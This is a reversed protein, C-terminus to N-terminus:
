WMTQHGRRLRSRRTRRDPRFMGGRGQDCRSAGGGEHDTGAEASEGRGDTQLCASIIDREEFGEFLGPTPGRDEAVLAEGVIGTGRDQGSGEQQIFEKGKGSFFGGVIDANDGAM